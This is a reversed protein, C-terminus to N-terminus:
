AGCCKKFKKGSGCPCPANRGTKDVRVPTLPETEGTVYLWAGNEKRFHSKERLYGPKDKVQYHAVFEVMGHEDNPGGAETTQIDLAVWDIQDLSDALAPRTAPDWTRAIYARDDVTYATYRSRM